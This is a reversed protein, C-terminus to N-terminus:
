LDGTTESTPRYNKWVLEGVERLQMIFIDLEQPNEFSHWGENYLLVKKNGKKVFCYHKKIM